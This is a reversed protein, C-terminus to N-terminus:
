NGLLRSIKNDITEIVLQFEGVSLRGPELRGILEIVIEDYRAVWTCIPYNIDRFTSCSLNEESAHRSIFYWGAINTETSSQRSFDSKAGNINRYIAVRQTIDNEYADKSTSINRKLSGDPKNTDTDEYPDAQVVWGAPVENQTILLDAVGFSRKPATPLVAPLWCFGILVLFILAAIIVIKLCSIIM